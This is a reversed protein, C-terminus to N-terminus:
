EGVPLLVNEVGEDGLGVQGAFRVSFPHADAVVRQAAMQLLNVGAQADGVGHGGNQCGQAGADEGQVVGGVVVGFAGRWGVV